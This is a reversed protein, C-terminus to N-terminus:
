SMAALLGCGILSMGFVNKVAVRGKRTELLGRIRGAVLACLLFVLFVILLFLPGLLLLQEIVPADQHLFQPFYVILFGIIKPNLITTGLGQMFANGQRAQTHGADNVRSRLQAIGLYTLYVTDWRNALTFRRCLVPLSM